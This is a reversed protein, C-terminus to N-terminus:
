ILEAEANLQDIKTIKVTVKDGIKTDGILILFGKIRSIGVGNPTVDTIKVEYEEGMEIPCKKVQGHRRSKAVRQSKKM